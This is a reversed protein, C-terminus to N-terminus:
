MKLWNAELILGNNDQFLFNYSAGQDMVPTTVIDHAQLRGQLQRGTEADPLLFAIHHVGVYPFMLRQLIEPHSPLPQADPQEFFHLEVKAEAGPKITCTRGHIPNPPNIDDAQMGLVETYFRITEELDCTALAIHHMEQWALQNGPNNPLTVIM